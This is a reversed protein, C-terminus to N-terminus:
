FSKLNQLFPTFEDCKTLKAKEAALLVDEVFKASKGFYKEPNPYQHEMTKFIMAQSKTTESLGLLKALANLKQNKESYKKQNSPHSAYVSM